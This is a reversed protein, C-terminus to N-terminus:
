SVSNYYYDLLTNNLIWDRHGVTLRVNAAKKLAKAKTTSDLWDSSQITDLLSAKVDNVVVLASTKVDETLSNDVYLRNMLHPFADVLQEVCKEWRQKRLRFQKFLFDYLTLNLSLEIWKKNLSDSVLRGFHKALIWGFYNAIVRKPTRSMLETVKQIYKPSQVIPITDNTVRVTSNLEKYVNNILQLWDITNNSM